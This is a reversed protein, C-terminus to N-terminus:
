RGTVVERLNWNEARCRLYCLEECRENRMRRDCAIFRDCKSGRRSRPRLSGRRDCQSFPPLTEAVQSATGMVGRGVHLGGCM